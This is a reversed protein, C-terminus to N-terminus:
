FLTQLKNVQEVIKVLLLTEENDCRSLPCVFSCFKIFNCSTQRYRLIESVVSGIHNEKVPFIKM